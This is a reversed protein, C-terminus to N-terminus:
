YLTLHTNKVIFDIALKVKEPKTLTLVKKNYSKSEDIIFITFCNVSYNLDPEWNHLEKIDNSYSYNTSLKSKIISFQQFNSTEILTRKLGFGFLFIVKYLKQNEVFFGKKTFLISIFILCLLFLISEIIYYSKFSASNLMGLFLMGTIFTLIILNQFQRFDLNRELIIKM